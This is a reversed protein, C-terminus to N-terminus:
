TNSRAKWIRQPLSQEGSHVWARQGVFKCLNDQTPWWRVTPTGSKCNRVYHAVTSLDEGKPPLHKILQAPEGDPPEKEDTCYSILLCKVQPQERGRQDLFDWLVNDPALKKVSTLSVDEVWSWSAASIYLKMALSPSYPLNKTVTLVKGRGFTLVNYFNFSKLTLCLTSKWNQEVM